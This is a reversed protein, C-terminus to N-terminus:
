LGEPIPSRYRWVVKVAAPSMGAIARRIPPINFQSLGKESSEM